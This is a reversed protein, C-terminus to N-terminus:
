RYLSKVRGWSDPEVSDATCGNGYDELVGAYSTTVIGTHRVWQPYTWTQINCDVVVSWVQSQGGAELVAILSVAGIGAGSSLLILSGAVVPGTPCGGAALLPHLADGANLFGNLPTFGVVSLDGVPKIGLEAASIGGAPDPNCGTFWLYITAVGAVDPMTHVTPDTSSASLSWEYYGTGLGALSAAPVAVLALIAALITTARQM